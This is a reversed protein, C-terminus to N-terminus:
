MCDYLSLIMDCYDRNPLAIYGEVAGTRMPNVPTHYARVQALGKAYNLYDVTKLQSTYNSILALKADLHETIDLIANPELLSWVEYALVMTEFEACSRAYLLNAQRHDSQNDLFWPLLVVDPQIEAVSNRLTQMAQADLGVAGDSFDLFQVSKVKLAESVRALESKRVEVMKRKALERDSIANELSGGGAGDTLVIFHIEALDVHAWLLGGAGICEDDPHPSIALIRKGVPIKLKRPQWANVLLKRRVAYEPASASLLWPKVFGIFRSYTRVGIWWRRPHIEWRACFRKVAKLINM